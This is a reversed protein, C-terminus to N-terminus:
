LKEAYFYLIVAKKDRFDSLRHTKGLNDTLAFDPAPGDLRASDIQSLDYNILAKRTDTAAARDDRELEWALSHRVYWDPDKALIRRYPEQTPDLPGLLSLGKLSYIRVAPEPDELARVLAPRTSPDAAVALVQAAFERTSPSGNKLADVLAPAAAPGAKSLRVLGEMRVKWDTNGTEFKGLIDRAEQEVTAINANEKDNALLSPPLLWILSLSLVARISLRLMLQEGNPRQQRGLGLQSSRM